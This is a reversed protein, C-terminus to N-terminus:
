HNSRRLKNRYEVPSVGVILKFMKTFHKANEYGVERAIDNIRNGNTELLEKARNIRLLNLYEVFRMGTRQHFISSFYNYNLSVINAVYSLNIDKYFNNKIFQIAEDVKDTRAADHAHNYSHDIEGLYTKLADVYDKIRDYHDLQKLRRNNKEISAFELPMHEAFYQYVYSYLLDISKETYDIIYRCLNDENFLEDILVGVDDYMNTGIMEPKKKLKKAQVDYDASLKKIDHYYIIKDYAGNLFLKYKLAEVAQSYVTRMMGPGSGKEGAAIAFLGSERNGLKSKIYELDLMHRSVFVSRKRYDQFVFVDDDMNGYQRRDLWEREAMGDERGEREVVIPEAIYVHFEHFLMTM